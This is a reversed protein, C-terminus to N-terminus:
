GNILRILTSDPFYDIINLCGYDQHLTLIRSLDLGLAKCLIVRNVGGHGVFLIDNGEQEELIGEFCAMIRKSLQGMSEGGGPNRFSVPDAMRKALEDPFLERIDTLTMGEWDGFYMEKLEPLVNIRVDHHRAIIRAGILSRKLDSSYVAKIDTLRLREALHEMQIMGVETMEVDTHGCITFRDYGVIQGHRVIYLRTRRDM